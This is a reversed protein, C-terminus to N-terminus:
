DGEYQQSFHPTLQNQEAIQQQTRKLNDLASKMGFDAGSRFGANFIQVVAEIHEPVLRWCRRLLEKLAAERAADFHTM